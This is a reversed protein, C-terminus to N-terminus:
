LRAKLGEAEKLHSAVKDRTSKLQTKLAASKVNPILERDMMLMIQRHMNIQDEVYARDFEAGKLTKLHELSTNAQDTISKSKENPNSSVNKASAVKKDVDANQAHATAMQKAFQQVDKNTAHSEAYRGATVEAEDASQLIASIKGDDLKALQQDARLAAKEATTTAWSQVSAFLFNAFILTALHTSM